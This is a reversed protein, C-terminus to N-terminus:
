DTMGLAKRRQARAQELEPFPGFDKVRACQPPYGPPIEAYLRELGNGASRVQIVATKKANILPLELTATACYLTEMQTEASFLSKKLEKQFPGALTADILKAELLGRFAVSAELMKAIEQRRRQLVVPDTSVAGGSGATAAQAAAPDPKPSANEESATPSPGDGSTVCGALLLCALVLGGLARGSKFATPRAPPRLAAALRAPIRHVM